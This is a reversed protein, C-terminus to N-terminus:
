QGGGLLNPIIFHEGQRIQQMLRAIELHSLYASRKPSYGAAHFDLIAPQNDHCTVCSAAAPTLSAHIATQVTQRDKSDVPSALFQRAQTTLTQFQTARQDAVSTWALKARYEGAAHLPLETQLQTIASKWVPSGPDTSQLEALLEDLYADQGLATITQGLLNKITPNVSASQSQIADGNRELYELLQLIAPADQPRNSDTSVWRTAAPRDQPTAHCM